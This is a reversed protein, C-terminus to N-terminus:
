CHCTFHLTLRWLPSKFSLLSGSRVDVHELLVNFHLEGRRTGKSNLIMIVISLADQQADADGPLPPAAITQGAMTADKFFEPVTFKVNSRRQIVTYASRYAPLSSGESMVM